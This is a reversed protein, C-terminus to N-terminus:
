CQAAPRRASRDGCCLHPRGPGAGDRPLAAQERGPRAWRLARRHGLRAGAHPRRRRLAGARARPRHDGASRRPGPGRRLAGLAPGRGFARRETGVLRVLAGPRRQTTPSRAWCTVATTWCCRATPGRRSPWRHGSTSGSRWGATWAGTCRSRRSGRSSPSGPGWRARPRRGDAPRGPAGSRRRRGGGGPHAPQGRRDRRRRRPAAVAPGARLRGRGGARAGRRPPAAHAPARRRAPGGGAPGQHPPRHPGPPPRRHVSDM